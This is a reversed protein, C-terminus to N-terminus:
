VYRLQFLVAFIAIVLILVVFPFWNFHLCMWGPLNAETTMSRHVSYIKAANLGDGVGVLWSYDCSHLYDLFVPLHQFQVFKELRLPTVGIKNLSIGLYADDINFPKVHSFASVVRPLLDGSLLVMSGKCFLPYNKESYDIKAVYHRHKPNRVVKGAYTTGGYLSKFFGPGEAIYKTLRPLHVYVDDDTKVIFKANFHSALRIASRLKWTINRYHELVDVVIMDKYLMAETKIDGDEKTDGTKGVFFVARCGSYSGRLMPNGIQNLLTNNFSTSQCNGWTRRIAERRDKHKKHRASSSILVLYLLNSPPEDPEIFVDNFPYTGPKQFEEPISILQKEILEDESGSKRENYIWISISFFAVTLVAFLSYKVLRVYHIHFLRGVDKISLGKMELGILLFCGKDGARSFASYASYVDNSSM